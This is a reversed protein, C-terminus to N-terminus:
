PSSARTASLALTDHNWTQSLDLIQYPRLASFLSGSARSFVELVSSFSERKAVYRKKKLEIAMGGDSSREIM